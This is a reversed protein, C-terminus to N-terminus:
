QGVRVEIAERLDPDLNTMNELAWMCYSVPLDRIATGKHKGFPFKTDLSISQRTLVLVGELDLGKGDCVMRLLSLCALVDGMARHATGADLKFQYRLTQLKHDPADPWLIRALKLTCLKDYVPPLVSSLMRCDFAVNHGALLLDDAQFPYSTLEMAEALTPSDVVMEDTIHHIGSAQPSIPVEPDILSEWEWRVNLNNDVQVIALDCVGGQLGATETDIIYATSTM